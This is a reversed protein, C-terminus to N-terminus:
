KENKEGIIAMVHKEIIFEKNFNFYKKIEILVEDEYEPFYFTSSKWYALLSEPNPFRIRNFFYKQTIVCYKRVIPLVEEEMFTTSSRIVSEPLKFYKELLSFLSANNKGFPGVILINGKKDLHEIMEEITSTVNKSYYLGYFCSILNYKKSNLIPNKFMEEMPSQILIFRDKPLLPKLREEAKKLAEKSIDVGFLMKVEPIRAYLVLQNGTGCCVDLVNNVALNRILNKTWVSFDFEGYKTNIDSRSELKKTDKAKKYVNDEM